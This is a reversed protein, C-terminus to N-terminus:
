GELDRWLRGLAANEAEVLALVATRATEASQDPALAAAAGATIQDLEALSGLTAARRSALSALAVLARARAPNEINQGAAARVVQRAADAEALFGRHARTAASVLASIRASEAPDKPSIPPPQILPLQSPAVPNFQGKVPDLASEIPRKALSPYRPNSGACGGLALTASACLGVAAAFSLPIRDM